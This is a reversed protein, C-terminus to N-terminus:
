TGQERIAPTPTRPQAMRTQRIIGLVTEAASSQPSQLRQLTVRFADRQSQRASADDLLLQLQENLLDARCRKGLLEPVARTDSVLNVLNVTDVTLLAAVLQRSLWNMDYGIVMPTDAAALELTVTGSAALAIDATQFAARKRIDAEKGDLGAPNVLSVQPPWSRMAASLLGAVPPAAPILVAFEPRAQLFLEVAKRFVPALVRVESARSGPLVCLVPQDKGIQFEQRLEDLQDPGVPRGSAAPHGVFTSSIGSAALVDPEFPLLALVHDVSNALKAARKPRWAWVSPAVYHILPFSVGAGKVRRAVRLCFDPSDITVLADAKFAIAADATDRVLRMLHPLRPIVEAIGMVSLASYDFLSPLGCAQMEPGGVGAFAAEGASQRIGEMLAAGLRDGSPEGAVLFVRLTM